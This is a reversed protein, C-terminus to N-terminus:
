KLGTTAIGNILHKQAFLFVLFLPLISLISMAFMPGWSSAGTSDLFANLAIPATYLARDSIYLLPGLFDNWTWIFTFIAAVALAPRMLPLIIRWFVGFPGCGDVTAADDLTRPLGRMFQVMLFIFFADVALFKPVVLPFYTNTWDISQFLIYQPVLTVHFPLMLTALMAAFLTKKFRFDLRAFAYAALSCSLLNGLVSIAAIVFSNLFFTSFPIGLADWGQTFNETTFTAPWLGPDSFIDSEPKFASAVMWLLPYVM